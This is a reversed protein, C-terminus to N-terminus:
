RGRPKTVKVRNGHWIGADSIEPGHGKDIMERLWKKFTSPHVGGKRAYPLGEREAYEQLMAPRNDGKAFKFEFTESLIEGVGLPELKSLISQRKEEDQPLKPNVAHELELKYSTAPDDFTRTGTETLQAPLVKTLLENLRRKMNSLEDELEDIQMALDIAETANVKLENTDTELLDGPGDDWFDNM